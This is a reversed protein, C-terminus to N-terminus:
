LARNEDRKGNTQVQYCHDNAGVTVSAGTPRYCICNTSLQVNSMTITINMVSKHALLIFDFSGLYDQTNRVIGSQYQGRFTQRLIITVV